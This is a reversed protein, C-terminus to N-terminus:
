SATSPRYDDRKTLAELLDVIVHSAVFYARPALRCGQEDAEMFGTGALFQARRQLRRLADEDISRAITEWTLGEAQRLRLSISERAADEASLRYRERRPPHPPDTLREVYDALDAANCWRAEGDFSHASPGLGYYPRRQWIDEHHRCRHGPQCFNSLEYHDYGADRMASRLAEYQRFADEDLPSEASGARLLQHLLTEEEPALMYCSLHEPAFSLAERYVARWTDLQTSPLGYTLDISLHTCGAARVDRLAARVREGGYSRGLLQLTADDFSQAGVSVRNYGAALAARVLDLSVSEPGVELTVECSESWAPGERLMAYIATLREAGLVSPTGGGVYVSAIRIAPDDLRAEERLLRWENALAQLYADYDREDGYVSYFSCYRCKSRCYPIHVYLSTERTEGTEHPPRSM